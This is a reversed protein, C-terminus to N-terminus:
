FRETAGQGLCDGTDLIAVKVGAGTFKSDAARTATLGWTFNADGSTRTRQDTSGDRRQRVTRRRGDSDGMDALLKLGTRVWEDYSDDWSAAQYVWYEPRAHRINPQETANAAIIRTEDHRVVAFGLNDFSFAKAETMAVALAIMPKDAVEFSSFAFDQTHALRLDDGGIARLTKEKASPKVGKDFMVLTNGTPINAYDPSRENM